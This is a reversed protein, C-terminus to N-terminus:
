ILDPHREPDLGCKELLKSFLPRLAETAPQGEDLEGKESVADVMCKASRGLIQRMRLPLANPIDLERGKVGSYGAIWEYPGDIKLTTKLLDVYNSLAGVFPRKDFVIGDAYKLYITTAGWIEGTRFVFSMADSAEGSLVEYSGFGDDAIFHSWGQLDDGGMPRLTQKVLSALRVPSLEKDVNQIPLLRLWMAPGDAFRIPNGAGGSGHAHGIPEGPSRFRAGSDSAKAASFLPAPTPRPLRSRFDPSAAIAKLAGELKGTLEARVKQKEEVSADEPLRYCLPYRLHAMDFPMNKDPDGYATNMVTVILSHGISKLAWGYEILVNPNPSPRGDARMAVFTLDAVFVFTQDIKRFITDVIPPTGGVGNTDSDIALGQDRLADEVDVDALVAKAANRLAQNLVNRGNAPPRDSQWSFFITPPM